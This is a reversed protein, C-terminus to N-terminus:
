PQLKKNAGFVPVPDFHKPTLRSPAGLSKKLWLFISISSYLHLNLISRPRLHEVFDLYLEITNGVSFDCYSVGHNQLFSTKMLEIAMALETQFDDHEHSGTLKRHTYPSEWLESFNPWFFWKSRVWFVWSVRWLQIIWCTEEMLVQLVGGMEKIMVKFAELHKKCSTKKKTLLLDKWGQFLKVDELFIELISLWM